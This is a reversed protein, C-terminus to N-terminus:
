KKIYCTYIYTINNYSISLLVLNDTPHILITFGINKYKTDTADYEMVTYQDEDTYTRIIEFDIIQTEKSYIVCRAEDFNIVADIDVRETNIKTGTSYTVSTAKLIFNQASVSVSLTLALILLVLLKKM